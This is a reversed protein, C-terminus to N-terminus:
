NVTLSFTATNQLTGSTATVTVTSTTAQPTPTSSSGGCGSLLSLGAASILLLLVLQLARRKRWGLLCLGLALTVGPLLPRSDHRVAASAASTSVTLTTTSAATGSPTVTAPSFSCIAGAPLGSCSFSVASAFGHAPTVSVTATGSQGGTVTLSAPSIAVSFNPTITYTASTVASYTYGSGTAFPVAGVAEITETSAVTLTVPSTNTNSNLITPTTGNTTYLIYAGATADSITVTQTSSYTGASPSFTPAAVSPTSSTIVYAATAVASDTDGTEVAIAEITETSSVTIPGTYKTSGTTPTTGNTTYYITAGSTADGITVTQASTYTGAPPTFTPTAVTPPPLNITYTASAVASNADGTAVAIAEITETSSVTIAGSYKTSSTTPASGNTTYYITAGTTADNITVTQASTYTGGAPSFTPTATAPENITYSATAVASNSYGSAIAIAEITETSSVTIAGSYKASSTTPTTGNTTYYIAAGSTADAITVTQTGSYIGGAPSFTPTAATPTSLNITYTATAVASNTDGAAVAIAEITETASVAIPGSYKTSGTTPTTGNTTYYITAGSTADNITVTQASTYTGSAPSFTPTAAAPESITYTATAIGSTSYGGAIAVAELTETSSVTIAGSYVSANTGPAPTTGNTTYYITAGLTADSFTITQSSTYSGSALSIVPTAALNSDCNTAGAGVVINSCTSPGASSQPNWVLAWLTDGQNITWGNSGYEGTFGTVVIQTDTWSSVSLTVFDAPNNLSYGANWDGNEDIIRIYPSDGDYAVQTGFGSGTITFTQTQEAVISSVTLIVPGSYASTSIVYTASAVASNSYGSAVAIAEITETSSVTIEGSYKTSSTTPTTGNTTYYITAGTTSDAITVTQASSFIGAAPSFTPTAVTPTSINITYTATAVSSNTDSTAVAIAEITETASVAIPASYVSSGTTPTTGNTTYYITAGATSDSISVSQASTYTGAAPTFTPLSVPPNITETLGDGSSGWSSNGAYSALIYHSGAALTSTSYTAVGSANLAVTGVTAEDISFVVSGAPTGTGTVPSVAATFTVSSSQNAPNASATLATTTDATTQAAGMDFEAVFATNIASNYTTEFADKTIPFNSSSTYGGLYVASNSGLAVQYAGDTGSGGFFTSYLLSSGAPNLEALFANNGTRTSQYANSTIPFDNSSTTGPIYLDGSSDVAALFPNDGGSGGLYTSYVLSASGTKAPNIKAAFGTAGGSAAGKNTTQYAGTTVPFDTSYTYGTIYANNASDLVIGESFDGTSSNGGLYTSYVLATGTPNLETFTINTGGNAAANNAAQCATSATVPYDTSRSHGAVYANGSADVAVGLIVYLGDIDSELEGSGGLYTSYALGSGTPNLKTVFMNWAGQSYSKNVTQFAGSTTPYDSSQTSGSIFVDGGADLALSLPEDYSSGGVYTSYVLATGSSNLKTVFGTAASNAAAKNVTQYAGTTTPFNSSYTWGAIYADGSADVAIAHGYDGQGFQTNAIADGGIYTSYDLATGSANLKSVFATSVSNTSSAENVAEYAGPTLPFNQSWTLGTVYVAGAADVAIAVVYDQHSGGLFTSYVLTPDIVLPASHDYAGPAFGVSNDGLLRFSGAVQRHVGNFTQYIVPKHFAIEGDPALIELNGSRDLKLEKAGAFHLRIAKASAGPAVVFDYELQRQNGYYVLDIGPYVGEYRVKAFTPVASHWKSSDNGIFFSATGSLRDTGVPQVHVNAGALQMRVIDTVSTTAPQGSGDEEAHGGSSSTALDLPSLGLRTMRAARTRPISAAPKRLALVAEQATLFLSYGNGRSLFKVNRDSQGQNAEFSLPLNGYKEALVARNPIAASSTALSTPNREPDAQKGEGFNPIALAILAVVVWV